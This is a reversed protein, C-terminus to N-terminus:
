EGLRGVSLDMLLRTPLDVWLGGLHDSPKMKLMELCRRPTMGKGMRVEQLHDKHSARRKSVSAFVSVPGIGLPIFQARAEHGNVFSTTEDCRRIHRNQRKQVYDFFGRLSVNLV